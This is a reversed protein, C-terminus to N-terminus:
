NAIGYGPAYFRARATAKRQRRSATSQSIGQEEAFERSTQGSLAVFFEELEVPSLDALLARARTEEDLAIIVEEPTPDEDVVVMMPYAANGETVEGVPLGIRHETENLRYHALMQRVGVWVGRQIAFKFSFTGDIRRASPLDHWYGLLDLTVESLVDQMLEADISRFKKNLIRGVHSTVDTWTKDNGFPNNPIQEM